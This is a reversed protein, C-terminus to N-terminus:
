SVCTTLSLVMLSYLVSPSINPWKWNKDQPSQAHPTMPERLKRPSLRTLAEACSKREKKKKKKKHKIYIRLYSSVRTCNLQSSSIKIAHEIILREDIKSHKIFLRHRTFDVIHSKLLSCTYKFDNQLTKKTIM